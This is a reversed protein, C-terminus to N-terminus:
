DEVELYRQQFTAFDSRDRLSQLDKDSKAHDRMDQTDFFGAEGARNLYKIAADGWAEHRKRLESHPQSDAVGAAASLEHAIAYCCAMDFLWVPEPKEVELVARGAKLGGDIDGTRILCIARQFEFVAWDEDERNEVLQNWIPLSVQYQDTQSLSDALGFRVLRLKTAFLPDTEPEKTQELIQLLQEYIPIATPYEKRERFQNALNNEGVFWEDRFTPNQPEAQHLSLRLKRAQDFYKRAADFESAALQNGWDDLSAALERPTRTDKPNDAIISEFIRIAANYESTAQGLQEDRLLHALEIQNIALERRCELLAPFENALEKLDSVTAQLRELALKREGLVKLIKGLNKQYKSRDLRLKPSLLDSQAVNDSSLTALAQEMMKRAESSRGPERMLFGAYNGLVRAEDISVAPLAKSSLEAFGRLSQQYSTEAEVCRNLQLLTNAINGQLRALEWKVKQVAAADLLTSRTSVPSGAQLEPSQLTQDTPAVAPTAALLNSFQKAALIYQELAAPFNSREAQVMGLNAQAAALDQQYNLNDPYEASLKKWSDIATAYASQAQDLRGLRRQLNAVRFYGDARLNQAETTSDLSTTFQEFQRLVRDFFKQNSETLAVQQALMEGILDDSITNLMERTQRRAQTEAALARQTKQQENTLAKLADLTKEKESSVQDLALQTKNKESNIRITGIASALGVTSVLVFAATAFTRHRRVWRHSREWITEQYASVLEDATFAEVDAALEMATQYRDSPRTAMAKMVIANLPRPIKPSKKIPEVFRNEAAKAVIESAYRGEFPATGVLINYLTAGLSFIDSAPGLENLRGAAQEPSMYGPTGLTSGQMTGSGSAGSMPLLTVEDPTAHIEDRGVTKALGWDVVLTEGFKGLMVNAPKLDRHVVGRSHAYAIAHCTDVFRTLLGRLALRLANDSAGADIKQHYDIVEDKMSRGKIFRMAYFPRGDPYKGYAYVPVVGPHELGGTICAEFEFRVRAEQNSAFKTQIEKIAVERDLENDRALFVEGLGGKAHSNVITFRSSTPIGNAGTSSRNRPLQSVSDKSFPRSAATLDSAFEAPNPKGSSASNTRSALRMSTLSQPDSDRNAETRDNQRHHTGVADAFTDATPDHQSAASHPSPSQENDSAQSDKRNSERFAESPESEPSGSLRSPSKSGSLRTMALQSNVARSAISQLHERLKSDDIRSCHEALYVAGQSESLSVEAEGHVELQREVLRRLLERDAAAISGKDAVMDALSSQKDKAWLNLAEILQDRTVFKNQLALVSFLLDANPDYM